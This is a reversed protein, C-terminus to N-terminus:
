YCLCVTEYLAKIGLMSEPLFDWFLKRSKGPLDVELTAPPFPTRECPWSFLMEPYGPMPPQPTATLEIPISISPQGQTGTDWRQRDISFLGAKDEYAWFLPWHGSIRHWQILRDWLKTWYLSQGQGALITKIGWQVKAPGANGYGPKGTSDTSPTWALPQWDCPQYAQMAVMSFSCM